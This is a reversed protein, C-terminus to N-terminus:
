ATSHKGSKGAHKFWEIQRLRKIAEEKSDYTGLTKKGDESKVLFKNGSKVIM